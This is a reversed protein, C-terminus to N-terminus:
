QQVQPLSVLYNGKHILSKFFYLMDLMAVLRMDRTGVRM